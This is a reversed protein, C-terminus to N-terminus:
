SVRHRLDRLLVLLEAHTVELPKETHILHTARREKEEQPMQSDIRAQAEARTLGDREMVRRLQEEPSVSMCWTEDCLADMGTEFLLPVSLFVLSIGDQAAQRISMMVSHQVLPHIIGELERRRAEDSFVVDGLAKRNLTGDGNFVDKGFQAEILPLAEGSPSTLERSLSDADIVVGGHETLFRTCETKGSGIGGTIGVVYPKDM